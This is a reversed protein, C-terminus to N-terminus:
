GATAHSRMLLIHALNGGADVTDRRMRPVGRLGDGFFHEGLHKRGHWNGTCRVRGGFESGCTFQLILPPRGIHGYVYQHDIEPIPRPVRSLAMASSFATPLRAPSYLDRTMAPREWRMTAGTALDYVALLAHEGPHPLVIDGNSNTQSVNDVKAVIRTEHEEQTKRKRHRREEARGGEIWM